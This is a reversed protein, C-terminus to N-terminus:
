KISKKKYQWFSGIIGYILAYLILMGCYYFSIGGKFYVEKDYQQTAYAIDPLFWLVYKLVPQSIVIIERIEALVAM